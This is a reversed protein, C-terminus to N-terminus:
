RVMVSNLIANLFEVVQNGYARQTYRNTNKFYKLKYLHLLDKRRLLRKCIHLCHFVIPFAFLLHNLALANLARSIVQFVEQFLVM